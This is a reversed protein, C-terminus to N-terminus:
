KMAIPHKEERYIDDEEGAWRGAGGMWGDSVGFLEFQASV